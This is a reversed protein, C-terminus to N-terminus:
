VLSIFQIMGYCNPIREVVIGTISASLSMKSHLLLLVLQWALRDISSHHYHGDDGTQKGWHQGGSSKISNAFVESYIKLNKKLM